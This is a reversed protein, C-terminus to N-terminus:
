QVDNDHLGVASLIDYDDFGFILDCAGASYRDAAISSFSPEGYIARVEDRTSSGIVAGKATSFGQVGDIYIDYITQAGSASGVTYVCLEEGGYLYARDNGGGVCAQGVQEDYVGGRIKGALPVFDIRLSLDVGDVTLVLDAESFPDAKPATTEEATTLAETTPEATTDAATTIVIAQTSASTEPAKTGGPTDGGCATLCFATILSLLLAATKRLNLKNM